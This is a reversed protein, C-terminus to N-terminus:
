ANVVEQITKTATTMVESLRAKFEVECRECCAVNFHRGNYIRRANM